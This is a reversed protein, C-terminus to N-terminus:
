ARSSHSGASRGTNALGGPWNIDGVPTELADAIKNASTANLQGREDGYVARRATPMSIGSREALAGLNLGEEDM